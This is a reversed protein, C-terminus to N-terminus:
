RSAASIGSQKVRGIAAEVSRVLAPNSRAFADGASREEALREALNHSTLRIGLENARAAAPSPRFMEALLLDGLESKFHGAEWYWQGAGDAPQRAIPLTTYRTYAAFDWLEIDSSGAGEASEREITEVLLRKWREFEPWLGLQRFLVLYQAHYPYTAVIVRAQHRRAVRLIRRLAAFEASDEAGSPFLGLRSGAYMGAAERLRQEFMVQYGSSQAIARYDLMPNFGDARITRPYSMQPLALTLISDRTGAMTFLAKARERRRLGDLDPTDSEGADDAPAANIVFDQFDIGLVVTRIASREALADFAAAQAAISQGPVALNYRRTGLAALAPNAPDFGVDARSNGLILVDPQAAVANLLKVSAVNGEPRIKVTAREAAGVLSFLWYPDASLNLSAVAAMAALLAALFGRLYRAFRRDPHTPDSM